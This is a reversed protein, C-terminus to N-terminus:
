QLSVELVFTIYHNNNIHIVGGVSEILGHLLDHDVKWLYTFKKTATYQDQQKYADLVHNSFELDILIHPFRFDWSATCLKNHM